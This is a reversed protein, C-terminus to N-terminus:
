GAWHRKAGALREYLAGYEGAPERWSWDAVMARGVVASRRRRDVLLRTARFLAATVDVPDPREAVLGTGDRNRDADVVTDRLGGVATVVPIAGYRMAQMQALGCPEFRSPMVFVDGGGFMLHALPQDYAEVFALHRPHDARQAALTRVLPAEGAGLVLLRMEVHRLVPVIRALMDIGKQETLRSVVVGLPVDDDPWGCLDLLARRNAARAVDVAGPRDGAAYRAALAPDTAPDWVATDIGNRIGSLDAWRDRLLGDLGFGGAPTKIEAAHNPSVAVVADALAIGGSLPNTGGWWEYHRGRPGIRRLWSGGTVGQYAVNHVTLVSPPPSPLAALVAATHWDHLHLVDPPDRRVMAAVARSFTLFRAPNDPWGSGDPRLYPHSRAIGPVSVLHVAGAIPHVGSRVVAPMAWGPVDIRRRVEGDLPRRHREPEYDPVVVDVDVGAGRVAGVLGAVADALGGVAAVGALEAAAVLVRMRADQRM